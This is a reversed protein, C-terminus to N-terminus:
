ILDEKKPSPNFSFGRIEPTKSREPERKADKAPEDMKGPKAVQEPSPNPTTRILRNTYDCFSSYCFTIKGEAHLTEWISKVSWGDNLAQTIDSRLALFIARNQDGHPLLNNKGAVMAAVRESLSKDM